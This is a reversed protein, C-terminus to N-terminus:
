AVARTKPGDVEPAGTSSAPSGPWSDGRYKGLLGGILVVVPFVIRQIARPPMAMAQTHRHRWLVHALYFIPPRGSEGANLVAVIAQLFCDLDVLPVVQGAFELRDEGANWWSHVVGAPFAATGGAPVVIKQDGVRAGLTGARVHGEEREHLHSHAPPGNSGAPLTGDITLILKGAADRERRLRLTERTHRNELILFDDM